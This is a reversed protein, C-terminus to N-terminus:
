DHPSIANKVDRRGWSRTDPSSTSCPSPGIIFIPMTAPGFVWEGWWRIARPFIQYLPQFRSRRPDIRFKLGRGLLRVQFRVGRSKRSPARQGSSSWGQTSSSRIARPLHGVCYAHLSKKESLAAVPLPLHLEKKVRVVFKGSYSGKAMAKPLPEGDEEQIALM